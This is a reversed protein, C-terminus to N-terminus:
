TELDVTSQKDNIYNLYWFNPGTKLDDDNEFWLNGNYYIIFLIVQQYITSSFINFKMLFNFLGDKKISYPNTLDLISKYEGVYLSSNGKESKKPIKPM